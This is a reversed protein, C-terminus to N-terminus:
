PFSFPASCYLTLTSELSMLQFTSFFWPSPCMSFNAFRKAPSDWARKKLRISIYIVIFLYFLFSLFHIVAYSILFGKSHDDGGDDTSNSNNSLNREEDPTM